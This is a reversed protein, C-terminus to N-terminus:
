IKNGMEGEIQRVTSRDTYDRQTQKDGKRETQTKAHMCVRACLHTYTQTHKLAHTHAHTGARARGTSNTNTYTEASGRVRRHWGRGAVEGRGGGGGGMRGVRERGNGGGGTERKPKSSRGKRIGIVSTMNGFKQTQNTSSPCSRQM